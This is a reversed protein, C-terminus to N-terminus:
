CVVGKWSTGYIIVPSLNDLIEDSKCVSKMFDTFPINVIIFVGM